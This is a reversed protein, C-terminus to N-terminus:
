LREFMHIRKSYRDDEVLRTPDLFQYRSLETFRCNELKVPTQDTSELNAIITWYIGFSLSYNGDSVRMGKMDPDFTDRNSHWLAMDLRCVQLLLGTNSLRLLTCKSTLLLCEDNANVGISKIHDCAMYQKLDFETILRDDNNYFRLSSYTSWAINGNEFFIPFDTVGYPMDYINLLRGQASFKVIRWTSTKIHLNSQKDVYLSILKEKANEREFADLVLTTQESSAFTNVLITEDKTLTYIRATKTDYASNAADDPIVFTQTLVFTENIEAAKIPEDSFWRVEM